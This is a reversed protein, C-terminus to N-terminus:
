FSIGMRYEKDANEKRYHDKGVVMDNVLYIRKQPLTRDERIAEKLEALGTKM